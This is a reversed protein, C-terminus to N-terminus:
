HLSPLIDLGDVGYGVRAVDGTAVVSSSGSLFLGRRRLVMPPQVLIVRGSWTSNSRARFSLSLMLSGLSSRVPATSLSPGHGNLRLPDELVVETM